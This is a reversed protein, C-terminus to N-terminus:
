NNVHYVWDLLADQAAKTSAAKPHNIMLSLAYRKGNKAHVYGALAFVGTLSGTKLHARGEMTSGLMRKKMTGDLSLIPLSSMLEPMVPSRYAAVLLQAMHEASMREKRSLGSGNEIVLEDMPLQKAALWEKIVQACKTETAPAGKKLGLTLLLQRAM